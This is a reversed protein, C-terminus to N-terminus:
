WWLWGTLPYCENNGRLTLSPAPTFECMTKKNM